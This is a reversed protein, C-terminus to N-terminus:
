DRSYAVHRRCVTCLTKSGGGLKDVMAGLYTFEEVDDLAKGDVVIKKSSSACETRLTKCNRANVKLGVRAAEEM